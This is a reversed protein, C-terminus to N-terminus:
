LCSYIARVNCLVRLPTGKLHRTPQGARSQCRPRHVLFWGLVRPARRLHRQAEGLAESCHSAVPLTARQSRGQPPSRCIPLPLDYALLTDWDRCGSLCRISKEDMQKAIENTVLSVARTLDVPAPVHCYRIQLQSTYFFFLYINFRMSLILKLKNGDSRFSRCLRRPSSVCALYARRLPSCRRRQLKLSSRQHCAVLASRSM